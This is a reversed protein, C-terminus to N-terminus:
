LAALLDAREPQQPRVELGATLSTHPPVLVAPLAPGAPQLSLCLGHTQAAHTGRPEAQAPHCLPQSAHSFTYAPKPPKGTAGKSVRARWELSWVLGGGAAAAGKEVLREGERCPRASGQPTHSCWHPPFASNEVSSVEKVLRQLLIMGLTASDSLLCLLLGCTTERLWSLQHLSGPGVKCCVPRHWCPFTPQFWHQAWWVLM